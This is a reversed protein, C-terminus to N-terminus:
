EILYSAIKRERLPLTNTKLIYDELHYYGKVLEVHSLQDYLKRDRKKIRVLARKIFPIGNEHKRANKMQRRVQNFGGTGVLKYSIAIRTRDSDYGVLYYLGYTEGRKKSFMPYYSLPFSDKPKAEWNQYLPSLVLIGIVISFIAAQAKSKKM